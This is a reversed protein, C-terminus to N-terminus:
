ELHGHSEIMNFPDAINPTLDKLYCLRQLAKIKDSRTKLHIILLISEESIGHVLGSYINYHIIGPPHRAVKTSFPLWSETFLFDFPALFPDLV